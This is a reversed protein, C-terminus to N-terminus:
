SDTASAAEKQAQWASASELAASLAVEYMVGQRSFFLLSGDGSLGPGYDIEPTNILPGLNVPESWGDGNRTSTMLDVVGYVNEVPLHAYYFIREGDATVVVQSDAMMTNINLPKVEFDREGNEGETPTAEYLDFGGVATDVLRTSSFIMRGQADFAPGEEHGGTNISDPLVEPEAWTETEPDWETVWINLDRLHPRDPHPANSAYYLRGDHPSFRPSTASLRRPLEILEPASWSGDPKKRMMMLDTEDGKQGAYVRIKGDPSETMTHNRHRHRLPEADPFILRPEQPLPEGCGALVCAIAFASRKLM